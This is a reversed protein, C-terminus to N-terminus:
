SLILIIVLIAALSGCLHSCVNFTENHCKFLTLAVEKFTHYRLRYGTIIYENDM